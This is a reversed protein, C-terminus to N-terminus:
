KKLRIRLMMEWIFVDWIEEEREVSMRVMPIEEIVGM